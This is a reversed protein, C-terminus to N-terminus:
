DFKEMFKLSADSLRKYDGTYDHPTRRGDYMEFTRRHKEDLVHMYNASIGSTLVVPVPLKMMSADKPLDLEETREVWDWGVAQRDESTVDKQCGEGKVVVGDSDIDLGTVSMYGRSSEYPKSNNEYGEKMTETLGLGGGGW